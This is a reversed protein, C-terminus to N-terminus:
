SIWTLFLVFADPMLRHLSPYIDPKVLMRNRRKGAGWGRSHYNAQKRSNLPGIAAIIQVDGNVPIVRDANDGAPGPFGM